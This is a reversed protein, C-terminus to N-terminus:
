TLVATSKTSKHSVPGRALVIDGRIIEALAEADASIVGVDALDVEWGAHAPM